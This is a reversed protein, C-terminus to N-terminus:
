QQHDETHPVAISVGTALDALELTSGAVIRDRSIVITDAEEGTALKRVGSVRFVSYGCLSLLPNVGVLDSNVFVVGFVSLVLAYAILDRPSPNPVTMLPLLYTAVYAAVESSLDRVRTSTAERPHVRRTSVLILSVLSWIGAIVLFGLFVRLRSDDFRVAGVFFLPVYSSLFLRVRANM